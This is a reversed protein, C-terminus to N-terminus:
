RYQCCREKIKMLGEDGGENMKSLLEEKERLLQSRQMELKTILKNNMIKEEKLEQVQCQSIELSQKTM